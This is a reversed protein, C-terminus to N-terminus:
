GGGPGKERKGKAEVEVAALGCAEAEEFWFVVGVFGGGGCELAEGVVEVDRPGEEEGGARERRRSGNVRAERVGRPQDEGAMRRVMRRPRARRRTKGEPFGEGRVREEREPRRRDRVKEADQARAKRQNVM